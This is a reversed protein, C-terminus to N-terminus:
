WQAVGAPRGVSRLLSSWRGRWRRRLTSRPTTLDGHPQSGPDRHAQTAPVAVVTGALLRVLRRCLVLCRRPTPCRGLAPSRPRARDRAVRPDGAGRSGGGHGAPDASLRCGAILAVPLWARVVAHALWRGAWLNGLGGLRAAEAVPRDFRGRLKPVLAATSGLATGAGAVAGPWGAVVPLTWSVLSWVNVAVPPVAGPHRRDLAAASSGYRARQRAFARWDPRNRHTVVAAPCTGSGTGGDRRHALRPGRGRRGADVRRLRGDRGAGHPPLRDGGDARLQGPAGPAVPGETAGLDLPSRHEEYRDLVSDSSRRGRVRPRRRRRGSRRLPRHRRRVLGARPPRRRRPLRRHRRSTARWGTNRAAGPGRPRPHRVVIARGAAAVDDVRGPEVRVTTSWSSRRHAESGSSTSCCQSTTPTTGCRAGRGVGFVDPGTSRTPIPWTRRRAATPCAAAPRSRRGGRAGSALDDVLRAGRESLRLLRLPSGGLLTRGGDSRRTGADLHLAISEWSGETM